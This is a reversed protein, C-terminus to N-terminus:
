LQDRYQMDVLLFIRNHNKESFIIKQFDSILPRVQVIIDSIECKDEAIIENFLPHDLPRYLVIAMFWVM